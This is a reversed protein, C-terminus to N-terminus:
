HLVVLLELHTVAAHTAFQIQIGDLTVRLPMDAYWPHVLGQEKRMHLNSSQFRTFEDPLSCPGNLLKDSLLQM